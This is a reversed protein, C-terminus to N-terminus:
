SVSKERPGNKVEVIFRCFASYIRKYLPSRLRFRGLVYPYDEKNQFLGILYIYKKEIEDTMCWIEKSSWAQMVGIWLSKAEPKIDWDSDLIASVQCEAVIFVKKNPDCIHALDRTFTKEGGLTVLFPKLKLKNLAPRRKQKAWYIGGHKNSKLPRTIKRDDKM